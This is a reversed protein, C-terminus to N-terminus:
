ATEESGRQTDADPVSALAARLARAYRDPGFTPWHGGSEGEWDDALAEVAALRSALIAEVASALGAADRYGFGHDCVAWGADESCDHFAACVAKALTERESENLRESM